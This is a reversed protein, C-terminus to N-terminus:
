PTPPIPSTADLEVPRRAPARLRGRRAAGARGARRRQRLARRGHVAARVRRVQHSRAPDAPQRSQDARARALRRLFVGSAARHVSRAAREVGGAGGGIPRRAPGGTRRAALHRRDDGSLRGHDAADLAGIDIGLELASTSVVARVDGERLGREIERRRLPLYGGRYGRVMEAAGPPGQCDEKLYTTLIETALRSQAFVIAQLDRRLFELTM